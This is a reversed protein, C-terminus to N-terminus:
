NISDSNVEFKKDEINGEIFDVLTGIRMYSIKVYHNYLSKDLQIKKFFKIVWFHTQKENIKKISKLAKNFSKKIEKDVDKDANKLIGEIKSISTVVNKDEYNFNASALISNCDKLNKVKLHLRFKRRNLQNLTEINVRNQWAIIITGLTLLAGIISVIGVTVEFWNM